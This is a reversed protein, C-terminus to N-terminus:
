HLTEEVKTVIDWKASALSVYSQIVKRWWYGLALGAIGGAILWPGSPDGLAALGALAALAATLGTNTSLYFTNTHGRLRELRGIDGVYMKYQEFAMEADGSGYAAPNKAFVRTTASDGPM